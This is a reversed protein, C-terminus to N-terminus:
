KVQDLTSTSLDMRGFDEFRSPAPFMGLLFGRVHPLDAADSYNLFHYKRPDVPLHRDHFRSLKECEERRPVGYFNGYATEMPTKYGFDFEGSEILAALKASEYYYPLHTSFDYTTIGAEALKALVQGKRKAWGTGEVMKAIKEASVQHDRRAWQRLQEWTHTQLFFIDDNMWVFEEALTCALQMAHAYSECQAFMVEDSLYMPERESIVIVQFPEKFNAELARLSLVLEINSDTYNGNAIPYIFTRKM